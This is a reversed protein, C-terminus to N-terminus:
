SGSELSIFDVRFPRFMERSNAIIDPIHSVYHLYAMEHTLCISLISLDMCLFFTLVYSLYLIFGLLIDFYYPPGMLDFEVM